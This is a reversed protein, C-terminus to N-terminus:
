WDTGSRSTSVSEIGSSTAGSATATAVPPPSSTVHAPSPCRDVNAAPQSSSCAYSSPGRRVAGSRVSQVSPAIVVGGSTAYSATMALAAPSSSHNRCSSRKPTLKTRSAGVLGPVTTPRASRM